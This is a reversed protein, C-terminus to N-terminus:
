EWHARTRTRCHAGSTRPGMAAPFAKRAKRGSQKVAFPGFCRSTSSQFLEQVCEAESAFDVAKKFLIILGALGDAFRVVQDDAGVPEQKPPCSLHCRGPVPDGALGALVKHLCQSLGIGDMM